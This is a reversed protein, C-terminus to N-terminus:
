QKKNPFSKMYLVMVNTPISLVYKDLVVNNGDLTLPKTKDNEV